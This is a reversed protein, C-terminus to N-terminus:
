RCNIDRCGEIRDVFHGCGPCSMWKEKEALMGFAIDNEDRLEWSQECRFGSHWVMQCQFCFWNKCSPCRSKKVNGGCENLILANCNRQPCYSKNVELITSECLVDCWKVFLSLGIMSRCSVPDLLQNCNMDPCKIYGVNDDEVKVKIYKIICDTCYPHRCKNKNKFKQDHLIMTEMCIECTFAQNEDEQQDHKSDHPITDEM